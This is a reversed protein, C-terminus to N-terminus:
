QYEMYTLYFMYTNRKITLYRHKQERQALLLDVKELIIERGALESPPNGAGPLISAYLDM